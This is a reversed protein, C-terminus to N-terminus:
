LLVKAKEGMLRRVGFLPENMRSKQELTDDTAENARRVLTM